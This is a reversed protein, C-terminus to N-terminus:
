ATAVVMLSPSVNELRKSPARMELRTLLVRALFLPKLALASNVNLKQLPISYWNTAVCTPIGTPFVRVSAFGADGLLRRLDDGSFQWLDTFGSVPNTNKFLSLPFSTWFPALLGPEHLFAAKGGTKLVRRMEALAAPVDPLHHLFSNGLVLDFHGAEFPLHRVDAAHVSLRGGDEPISLRKRLAALQQASLDCFAVSSSFTRAVYSGLYGQGCCADLVRDTPGPRIHAAELRVRFMQDWFDEFCAADYYDGDYFAANAEHEANKLDIRFDREDFSAALRKLYDHLM